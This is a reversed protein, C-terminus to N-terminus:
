CHAAVMNAFCSALGIMFQRFGQESTAHEISSISDLVVLAPKFEELGVRLNILLDEPSTAGPYGCQVVLREAALMEDM